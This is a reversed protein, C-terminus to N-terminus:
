SGYTASTRNGNGDAVGIIMDATDGLNRFVPADPGGSSKGASAAAVIRLIRSADFGAELLTQWVADGVNATSLVEGVSSIDSTLEGTATLTSSTDGSGSVSAALTGLAILTATSITGSGTLAAVAALVAQINANTINGTGTLAAVASVILTALANTINGTGTLNAVGNLEGALNASSVTGSADLIRCSMGGSSIAWSWSYGPLYGGPLAAKKDLSAWGVYRNRISGSKNWAGRDDSLSSGSTFRGCSKQFVNYNGLLM